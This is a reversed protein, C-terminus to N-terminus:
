LSYFDCVPLDKKIEAKTKIDSILFECKGISVDGRLWRSHFVEFTLKKREVTKIMTKKSRDIKFVIVDRYAPSNTGNIKNSKVQTPTPPVAFPCDVLVYSDVTTSGSPPKLDTAQVVAVELENPQIRDRFHVESVHVVPEISFEPLPVGPVQKAATLKALDEAMKKKEGYYKVALQKENEQKYKQLFGWCVDPDFFDFL